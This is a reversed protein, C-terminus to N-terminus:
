QLSTGVHGQVSMQKKKEGWDALVPVKAISVASPNRSGNKKWLEHLHVGDCVDEEGEEVEEAHYLLVARGCVMTAQVIVQDIRRQVQPAMLCALPPHVLAQAVQMSAQIDEMHESTRM